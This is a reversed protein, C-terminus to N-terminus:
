GVSSIILTFLGIGICYYGFYQIKSQKVLAIMWRCALIGVIFSTILAILIPAALTSDLGWGGQLLDLIVKGFIVPLVMLFSFRAARDRSVGLLLAVAITMGSRSIGPLIAVAQAIGILLARGYTLKNSRDKTFSTLFLLGGTCIFFIGVHWIGGEFLGEIQEEFTLGVVLAPLMSLLIQGVLDLEESRELACLSRFLAILDKWFVVVISLCTGLHVLVVMMLDSDISDSSGFFHNLLELHGSSSVPLFETLGQLLGLLLARWLEPM